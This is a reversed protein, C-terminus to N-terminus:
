HTFRIKVQGKLTVHKAMLLTTWAQLWGLVSPSLLSEPTINTLIGVVQLRNSADRRGEGWEKAWEQRAVDEEEEGKKEDEEEGM